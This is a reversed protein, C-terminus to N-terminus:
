MSSTGHLQDTTESINSTQWGSHCWLQSGIRDLHNEVTEVIFVKPMLTM